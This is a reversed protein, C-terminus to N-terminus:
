NPVVVQLSHDNDSAIRRNYEAVLRMCMERADIGLQHGVQKMNSTVYDAVSMVTVLGAYGDEQIRRKSSQSAKESVVLYVERGEDALLKASSFHAQSPSVSVVVRIRGVEYDCERGTQRDPAFGINVPVDVGFRLQLKAGVM